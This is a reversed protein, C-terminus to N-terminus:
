IYHENIPCIFKFSKMASQKFYNLEFSGDIRMDIGEEEGLHDAVWKVIFILRISKNCDVMYVPWIDNTGCHCAAERWQGMQMKIANRWRKRENQRNEM